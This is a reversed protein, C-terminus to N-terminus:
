LTYSRFRDIRANKQLNKLKADYTYPYDCKYLLRGSIAKIASNGPTIYKTCHKIGDARESRHYDNRWTVSSLLYPIAAHEESIVHANLTLSINRRFILCNKDPTQNGGFVLNELRILM